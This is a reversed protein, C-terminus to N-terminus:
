KEGEPAAPRTAAGTAAPKTSSKETSAEAVKVEMGDELEYNGQVIVPEGAKLDDAIVETERDNELGIRVIRKAAHGDKVTYLAYTGDEEPLVADRPVVLASAATKTIRGSVFSDLMWHTGGPPTVLVSTLRTAPDVRQAIMRIQGAIPQTTSREVRALEVAQGTKLFPADEPEVGLVVEIHNGSAIEVLPGGAPVIQGEQVDVKSIIGASPTKLTQETGVGRQVLSELKLKASQLGQQAQSLETNTALHQEFRQQAQALEKESAAVANKAEQLSVLADPSAEVRIVEAGVGAEQGAVVAVKRIRSEFSVSLIRVDGPQAVVSGYATITESITAQKLPAVEVEAVPKVDESPQTTAEAEHEGAGHRQGLWFGAGAAAAVIVGIVIMLRIMKM